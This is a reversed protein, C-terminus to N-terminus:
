PIGRDDVLEDVCKSLEIHVEDGAKLLGLNTKDLTERVVDFILENGAMEAVTLCVGNIAISEGHKVDPWVNALALRLGEGRPEVRTLPVSREVIGTFM